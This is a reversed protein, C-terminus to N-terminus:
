YGRAYWRINASNSTSDDSFWINCSNVAYDKFNVFGQYPSGDTRYGNGGIFYTTNTFSSPFTLKTWAGNWVMNGGQEILGTSWKIYWTFKDSSLYSDIIMPIEIWAGWVDNNCIRQWSRIPNTNLYSVRQQVYKSNNSHRIVEIYLWGTFNNPTNIMASGNYNGTERITNLDQNSINPIPDFYGRNNLNIIKNELPTLDVEEWIGSGQLFKKEDGAKPFPVLGKKGNSSATAGKFPNLFNKIQQLTIM